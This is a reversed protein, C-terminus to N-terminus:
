PELSGQDYYPFVTLSVNNEQPVSTLYISNEGKNNNRGFCVDFKLKDVNKIECNSFYYDIIAFYIQAKQLDYRIGTPLYADKDIGVIDTAIKSSALGIYLKGLNVKKLLYSKNLNFVLYTLDKQGKGKFTLLLYLDNKMKILNELDTTDLSTNLNDTFEKLITESLFIYNITMESYGNNYKDCILSKLALYDVNFVNRNGTGAFLGADTDHQIKSVPDNVFVKNFNDLSKNPFLKEIKAQLDKKSLNENQIKFLAKTIDCDLPLEVKCNAPSIKPLDKKENCCILVTFLVTLFLHLKLKKM